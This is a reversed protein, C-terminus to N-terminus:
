QDWLRVMTQISQERTFEGQPDFLTSTIGSMIRPSAGRMKKISDVAYSGELDTFAIEGEPLPKGLGREATRALIIAAQQREINNDPSFLPEGAANSGTGTVIRLGGIKRINVDGGDDAFIARETIEEGTIEEILTVALACFEGRTIAQDYDNQLSVPILGYGYATNIVDVAWPSATNLNPATVPMSPAAVTVAKININGDTIHEWYNTGNNSIYSVNRTITHNVGYGLNTSCMPVEATGQRVTYEVVVAFRSGAAGLLVAEDLKLTYWGPYTIDEFAAPSLKSTNMSSTGIYEPIIYVNVLTNADQIFIKVEELWEGGTGATFVNAGFVTTDGVWRRSYGAYGLPDYEYLVADPDYRKVGDVVWPSLPANTDEYSIWFNGGDGWDGGWSNQALWAGNGSPRRSSNFRERPFNDDWGILTVSHDIELTGYYDTSARNNYFASTQANYYATSGNSQSVANGDWFMNCSVAGYQMIAEKLKERSIDSKKEGGLYLINQVTYDPQANRAVSLSRSNPINDYVYNGYPDKGENVAGHLQGRMLYAAIMHRHGGGEPERVFGHSTNGNRDSTAYAMHLPSFLPQSATGNKLLSAEIISTASFAWCLGNPGQDRAPTISTSQYEAPLVASRTVGFAAPQPSPYTLLFPEPLSGRVPAPAEAAAPAGYLPLVFSLALLLSLGKRWIKM